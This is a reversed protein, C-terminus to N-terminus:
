SYSLSIFKRCYHGLEVLNCRSLHNSYVFDLGGNGRNAVVGRSENRCRCDYPVILRNTAWPMEMGRYGNRDGM